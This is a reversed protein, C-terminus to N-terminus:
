FILNHCILLNSLQQIQVICVSITKNLGQFTKEICKDLLRCSLKHTDYYNTPQPSICKLHLFFLFFYSLDVFAKHFPFNRYEALTKPLNFTNYYKDCFTFFRSSMPPAPSPFQKYLDTYTLPYM